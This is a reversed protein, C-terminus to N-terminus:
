PHGFKYWSPQQKTQKVTVSTGVFDSSAKPQAIMNYKRDYTPTASNVPASACGALVSAALLTLLLARM